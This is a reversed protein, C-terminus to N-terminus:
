RIGPRPLLLLPVKAGGFALASPKSSAPYSTKDGFRSSTATEDLNKYSPAPSTKRHLLREHPAQM